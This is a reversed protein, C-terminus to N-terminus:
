KKVLFFKGYYLEGNILKWSLEKSKILRGKKFNNWMKKNMMFPYCKGDCEKNCMQLATTSSDRICM